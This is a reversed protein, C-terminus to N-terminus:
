KATAQIRLWDVIMKFVQLNMKLKTMIAGLDGPLGGCVAAMGNNTFFLLESIARAREGSILSAEFAELTMRSAIDVYYRLAYNYTHLMAPRSLARARIADTSNNNNNTNGAGDLNAFMRDNVFLVAKMVVCLACRLNNVPMPLAKDKYNMFPIPPPVSADGLVSRVQAIFPMEM